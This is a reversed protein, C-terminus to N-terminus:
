KQLDRERMESIKEMIIRSADRIEKIDGSILGLEEMYLPKGWSVTVKNFFKIKKNKPTICVPIIPTKTQWAIMAAGSKPKQLEGTKSRTGEIFIGLIKGEKLIEEGKSIAKGDGAGRVVPFAGHAKLIAGAFKNKFLEAKAMYHIKRRSLASLIIPDANSLHNCCVIFSKDKPLNKRDNCKYFFILKLFPRALAKEINYFIDM